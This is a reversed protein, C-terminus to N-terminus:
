RDIWRDIMNLQLVNSHVYINLVKVVGGGWNLIGDVCRNRMDVLVKIQMCIRIM